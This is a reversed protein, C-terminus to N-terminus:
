YATDPTNYPNNVNGSPAIANVDGRARVAQLIGLQDLEQTILNPKCVQPVVVYQNFPADYYISPCPNQPSLPTSAVRLQSLQVSAGTSPIVIIQSADGQQDFVQNTNTQQEPLQAVPAASAAVPVLSLGLLFSGLTAAILQSRNALQHSFTM